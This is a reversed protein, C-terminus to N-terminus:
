SDATLMYSLIDDTYHAFQSSTRQRMREEKAYSKILDYDPPPESTIEVRLVGNKPWSDKYDGLCTIPTRTYVLHIYALVLLLLISQMLLCFELVRRLTKPFARAYILSVRFFLALFLRDRMQFLNQAQQQPIEGNNNNTPQPAPPPVAVGPVIGPVGPRPAPAPSGSLPITTRFGGIGTQIQHPSTRVTATVGFGFRLSSNNLPRPNGPAPGATGPSNALNNGANPGPSSNRPLPPPNTRQENNRSQHEDTLIGDGSTSSM